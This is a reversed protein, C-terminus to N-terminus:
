SRCLLCFRLCMSHTFEAVCERICHLVFQMCAVCLHGVDSEPVWSRFAWLQPQQRAPMGAGDFMSTFARIIM